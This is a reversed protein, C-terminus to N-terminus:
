NNLDIHHLLLSFILVVQKAAARYYSCGNFSQLFFAYIQSSNLSDNFHWSTTLSKSGLSFSEVKWRLTIFDLSRPLTRLFFKMTWSDCQMSVANVAISFVNKIICRNKNKQLRFSNECIYEFFLFRSIFKFIFCFDM